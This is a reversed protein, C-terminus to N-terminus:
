VDDSKILRYAFLLLLSFFVLWGTIQIGYAILSLTDMPDPFTLLTGFLGNKGVCFAGALAAIAFLFRSLLLWRIKGLICAERNKEDSM